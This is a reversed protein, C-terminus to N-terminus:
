KKTGAVKEVDWLVLVLCGLFVGFGLREGFGCERSGPGSAPDKNKRCSFRLNVTFALTNTFIHTLAMPQTEQSDLGSFKDSARDAEGCGDVVGSAWEERVTMEM